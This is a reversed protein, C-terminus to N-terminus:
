AVLAVARALLTTAEWAPAAVLAVAPVLPTTAEWAPAEVLAVALAAVLATPTEVLVLAPVQAM